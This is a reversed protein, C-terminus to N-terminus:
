LEKILDKIKIDQAVKIKPRTNFNKYICDSVTRVNYNKCSAVVLHVYGYEGWFGFYFCSEKISVLIDWGPPLENISMHILKTKIAKVLDKLFKQADCIKLDKPVLFDFTVEKLHNGQLKKKSSSM